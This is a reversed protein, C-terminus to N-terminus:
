AEERCEVLLERVQCKEDRDKVLISMAARLSKNGVQEYNYQMQIAAVPCPKPLREPDFLTKQDPDNWGYGLPCDACQQELSDHSSNPFYAM